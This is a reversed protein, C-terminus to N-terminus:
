NLLGPFFKRHNDGNQLHSFLCLSTLPSLLRGSCVCRSSASSPRCGRGNPESSTTTLSIASNRSSMLNSKGLLPGLLLFLLLGDFLMGVPLYFLRAGPLLRHFRDGRLGGIPCQDLLLHPLPCGPAPSPRPLGCQHRLQAQRPADTGVLLTGPSCVGGARCLTVLLTM